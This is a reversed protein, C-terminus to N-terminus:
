IFAGMVQERGNLDGSQIRRAIYARYHVPLDDKTAATALEYLLL